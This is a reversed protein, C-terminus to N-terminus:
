MREFVFDIGFEIYKDAIQIVEDIGWATRDIFFNAKVLVENEQIVIEAPFTIERSVGKLQLNGVVTYM